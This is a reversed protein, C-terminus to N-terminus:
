LDTSSAQMECITETTTSPGMMMEPLSICYYSYCNTCPIFLLIFISYLNHYHSHYYSQQRLVICVDKIRLPLNIYTNCNTAPHCSLRHKQNCSMKRLANRRVAVPLILCTYIYYRSVEYRRSFIKTVNLLIVAVNEYRWM